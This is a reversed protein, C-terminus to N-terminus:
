GNSEGNLFDDFIASDAEASASSGVIKEAAQMALSAIEERSAKRASEAEAELQARAEAKLKESDSEARQIIKDDEIASELLKANEKAEAIIKEGESDAAAIKEEYEKLKEDAASNAEEAERFQNEILDKRADMVKKIRGFLFKKMLFYFVILNIFVFIINWDFKLM